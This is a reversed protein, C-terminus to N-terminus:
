IRRVAFFDYFVIQNLGYQGKVFNEDIKLPYYLGVWITRELVRKSEYKRRLSEKYIEMLLEKKIETELMKQFIQIPSLIPQGM